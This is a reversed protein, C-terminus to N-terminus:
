KMNDLITNQKEGSTFPKISIHPTNRISTLIKVMDTFVQNNEM